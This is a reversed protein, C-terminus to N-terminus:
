INVGFSVTVGREFPEIEPFKYHFFEYEMMFFAMRGLKIGAGAGSHPKFTPGKTTTVKAKGTEEAEVIRQTATVGVKARMIFIWFSPDLIVSVRANRQTEKVKILNDPQDTSMDLDKNYDIEGYDDKAASIKQTTTLESQGAGAQFKFINWFSILGRMGYEQHQKITENENAKNKKDPNVSKTSRISVYPSVIIKAFVNQAFFTFIFILLKIKM